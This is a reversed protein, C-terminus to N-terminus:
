VLDLEWIGWGSSEKGDEKRLGREWRRIVGARRGIKGMCWIEKGYAVRNGMKGKVRATGGSGRVETRRQMKRM